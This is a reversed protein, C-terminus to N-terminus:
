CKRGLVSGLIKQVKNLWGSRMFLVTRLLATPSVGHPVCTRRSMASQLQGLGRRAGYGILYVSLHGFFLPHQM